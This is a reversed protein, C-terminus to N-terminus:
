SKCSKPRAAPEAYTSTRTLFYDRPCTSQPSYRHLFETWRRRWRSQRDPSSRSCYRLRAKIDLLAMKLEADPIRSAPWVGGEHWDPLYQRWEAGDHYHLWTFCFTQRYPITWGEFAIKVGDVIESRV